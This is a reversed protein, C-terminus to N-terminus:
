RKVRDVPTGEENANRVTNGSIDVEVPKSTGGVSVVMIGVGHGAEESVSIENNAISMKGSVNGPKGPRDPTPLGLVSSVEIGSALTMGTSNWYPAAPQVGEIVCSQIALGNVSDAFVAVRKPHM